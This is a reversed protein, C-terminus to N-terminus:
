LDIANKMNAQQHHKPKERKVDYIMNRNKAM